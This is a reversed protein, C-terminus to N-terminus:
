QNTYAQVLTPVINSWVKSPLVIKYKASFGLITIITSPELVTKNQLVYKKIENVDSKNAHAFLHQVATTQQSHFHKTARKPQTSVKRYVSVRLVIRPLM